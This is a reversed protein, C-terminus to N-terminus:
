RAFVHDELGLDLFPNLSGVFVGRARLAGAVTAILPLQARVHPFGTGGKTQQEEWSVEGGGNYGDYNWRGDITGSDVGCLMIAAAGLIRGAFDMASTVTNSGVCLADDREDELPSMDMVLMQPQQPHKYRYFGGQLNNLGDSRDCRDYEAAIVTFGRDIGEQATKRHHAFAYVNAATPACFDRYTENILIVTKGVFFDRPVFNLSSGSGVIWITEGPHKDKLASISVPKSSTYGCESCSGGTMAM